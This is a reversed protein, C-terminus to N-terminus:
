ASYKTNECSWATEGRVKLSYLPLMSATGQEYVADWHGPFIRRPPTILNYRQM